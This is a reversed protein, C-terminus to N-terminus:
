WGHNSHRVHRRLLIRLRSLAVSRYSTSNPVATSLTVLYDAGKVGRGDAASPCDSAAVCVCVRLCKEKAKKEMGQVFARKGRSFHVLNPCNGRREMNHLLVVNLTERRGNRPALVLQQIGSRRLPGRMGCVIPSSLLLPLQSSRFSQQLKKPQHM